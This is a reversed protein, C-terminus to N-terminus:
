DSLSSQNRKIGFQFLQSGLLAVMCYGAFFYFGQGLASLTQSSIDIALTFGFISLAQQSTTEVHNTSLVALFIAVVFVDAMSWKSIISIFSSVRLQVSRNKSFYAIVILLAKLVPVVVSFLFILAAVLLKNEVWLSNVTQMISLEKDVIDTTLKGADAISAMLTMDLSFMPLLIGPVFLGLAIVNFILGLHKYM